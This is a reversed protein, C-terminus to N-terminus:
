SCFIRYVIALSVLAIGVGAPIAWKKHAIRPWAHYTGSLNGVLLILTICEQTTIMKQLVPQVYTRQGPLVRSINGRKAHCHPRNPAVM